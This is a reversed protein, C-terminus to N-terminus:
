FNKKEVETLVNILHLLWSIFADFTWLSLVFVHQKQLLCSKFFCVFLFCQHQGKWTCSSAILLFSREIAILETKHCSINVNVFYHECNCMFGNVYVSMSIVTIIM